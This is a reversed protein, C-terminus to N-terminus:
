PHGGGPSAIAGNGGSGGQFGLGSATGVDSYSPPLAGSDNAEDPPGMVERAAPSPAPTTAALETVPPVAEAPERPADTAPLRNESTAADQPAIRVARDAAALHVARSAGDDAAGRPAVPSPDAVTRDPAAAQEAVTMAEPAAASPIGNAGPLWAIAAAAAIALAAAGASVLPRHWRRWSKADDATVIRNAVPAAPHQPLDPIERIIRAALSSPPLPAPLADLLRDLDPTREGTM